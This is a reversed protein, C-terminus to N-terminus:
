LLRVHYSGADDVPGTGVWLGQRVVPRGGALRVYSGLSVAALGFETPDTTQVDALRVRGLRFAAVNGGILSYSGDPQPGVVVRRVRAPAVFDGVAVPLGAVGTAVGAFLNSYRMGGLIAAGVGSAARVQCNELWGRVRLKGLSKRANADSLLVDAELNGGPGGRRGTIKMRGVRPAAIAEQAANVSLWEIARLVKVPNASDVNVDAARDLRIGTPRGGASGIRITGGIADAMRTSGLTGSVDLDGLLDVRAARLRQMSGYVAMGGVSTHGRPRLPNVLMRTRHSSGVLDIFSADEGPAVFVRGQGPGRIKVRVRDGDADTFTLPRGHTVPLAVEVAVTDTDTKPGGVGSNGRDGTVVNIAAHGYFGADPTFVMGDLAANIAAVPGTLTVVRTGDGAVATLGIQGALNLRGNFATLAVELLGDGEDVDVDAVSVHNGGVWSFYVVANRLTRQVPPVTNVPADNIANGTVDFGAPGVTIPGDAGDGTDTVSGTFSAPGNYDADPAFRATHRATHGDGLLAVAGNVAGGVAFTLQADPTEVDDALGWLDVDLVGDEDMGASGPAAAAPDNVPDVTVNVTAPGASLPPDAGDGTDTVTYTFSAPGNYDGTPTFRATHGDGLLVVTGNAGDAVTFALQDDPTEKDSALGRLDVQVPTDEDTTVDGDLAAPPDNVATVTVDVTVPGTTAPPHPGDGTDTVTYTFSAPGNYDGA